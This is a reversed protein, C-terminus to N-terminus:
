EVLRHAIQKAINTFITPLASAGSAYFYHDDTSPKSSSICKLLRQDATSDADSNGIQAACQADTYTTSDTSCVGFAVVYIEINQAKMAQAMNYTEIDLQRERKVATGCNNSGDDTNLYGTASSSAGTTVSVTDLFFMKATNGTPMAGLFKIYVSSNGAYTDLSTTFQQYTTTLNSTGSPTSGTTAHTVLTTWTSGDTSAQVQLKDTSAWGSEKAYWILDANTASSLNVTRTLSGTGRMRAHCPTGQPSNSATVVPRDTGSAPLVTWGAAWGSGQSWGGCTAISITDLFFQDTSAATMAGLFRIYVTANGAFDDLYDTYSTYSTSSTNLTRVTTWTTGDTSAQVVVNDSGSWNANKAYYTISAGGATSLNVTRQISSTGKIRAHCSADNPSNDSTVIPADVGTGNRTWNAAWGSGNSWGNNCSTVSITDLYFIHSATTATTRWRLYVTGGVYSDLPTSFQQFSTTLNSTGSPTSSATKHTILTTWGSAATCSTTNAEFVVSDSSSFAAEEAYYSIDAGGATSLSVPRCASALTTGAGVIQAACSGSDTHFISTETTPQTTGARTWNAAWGSGGNWGYSTCSSSPFNETAVTTLSTPFADTAVNSTSTSWGDSAATSLSSYLGNFCSTGEGGVNSCSSPPRCSNGNYSHPSAPSAQYTYSGTYRNDGDSLLVAYRRNNDQSTHNGTKDLVEWGKALGGCVNTGSGGVASINNIMTDLTTKDYILGSVQSSTSSDDLVCDTKSTKSMPALTTTPSARYCGRFAAVGIVTNGTPSSGLMTDKFNKAANKAEWIPCGSNNQTGNCPSDGMSSTSDIILAADLSAVGFGAKAKATVGATKVGVVRIFYTKITKSARAELLNEGAVSCHTGATVNPENAALYAECVDTAASTDPLELVGALAAADMSRSLEAKTMYLRGVDITLGVVAFMVLTALGVLIIVQGDEGQLGHLREAIRKFQKQIM